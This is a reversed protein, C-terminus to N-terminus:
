SSRLTNNYLQFQSNEIRQERSLFYRDQCKSQREANTKISKLDNGIQQVAIAALQLFLAGMWAAAASLNGAGASMLTNWLTGIQNALLVKLGLGISFLKLGNEM